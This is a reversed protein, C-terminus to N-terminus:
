ISNSDKAIDWLEYLEIIKDTYFYDDYLSGILKYMDFFNLTKTLYDDNHIYGSLRAYNKYMEKDIPKSAEKFSYNKLNELRELWSYAQNSFKADSLNLLKAFSNYANEGQKQFKTEKLIQISKYTSWLEWDQYIKKNKHKKIYYISVYNEMIIRLLCAVSNYNGLLVNTFLEELYDFHKRVLLDVVKYYDDKRVLKAKTYKFYAYFAQIEKKENNYIDYWFDKFKYDIFSFVEKM